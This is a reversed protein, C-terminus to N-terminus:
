SPFSRLSAALRRYAEIESATRTADWGLRAGAIAAVERAGGLGQDPAFLLLRARRELVDELTLAMEHELVHDIEARLVGPQGAITAGGDARALIRESDAGYLRVLREAAAPPLTARAREALAAMRAPDVGGPLPVSATRCPVDRRGLRQCVLDVVREAMRRHTTLKGVAISLFCGDGAVMVEDKRSIESPRKGEEHLLPRLGAWAGIVDARGLPTGVFTRNAAVLLYDADAATVEPHDTPPGYDTDTTGLYTVDGYPAAFVPRRDPAQMIVIHQVPLRERRVVLHIGKTLHLRAGSLVGALGRVADVWPGAANVVTRAHVTWARGTFTDRVEVASATPGPAIATVAAHNACLVGAAHAGRVTDLVLRADDTLYEVFTAAGHLRTGDLTPERALTEDHGWMEHKEDATVHAIKEFTWLGLGLKTHTARGYTPMLVRVSHTRHPAIRRLVQREAAAERVLGVDGQQLYRVGSHIMKSSRSSTGAAWDAREVLAVSLGRLAADRAVGAGTIGGGVVLLDFEVGPLAVLTEERTEPSFATRARRAASPGDGPVRAREPFDAAGAEGAAARRGSQGGALM